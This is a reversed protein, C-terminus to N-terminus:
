ASHVWKIPGLAKFWFPSPPRKGKFRLLHRKILPFKTEFGLWTNNEKSNTAHPMPRIRLTKSLGVDPLSAEWGQRILVQGLSSHVMTHTIHSSCIKGWDPITQKPFPGLLRHWEFRRGGKNDRGSTPNFLNTLSADAGRGMRLTFLIQDPFSENRGCNVDMLPIYIYIYINFGKSGM